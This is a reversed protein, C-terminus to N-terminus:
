KKLRKNSEEISVCEEIPTASSKDLIQIHEETLVFSSENQMSAEPIQKFFAMFAEYYYDPITITLQRM